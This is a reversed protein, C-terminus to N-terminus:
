PKSSPSGRYDINFGGLGTFFERSFYTGGHMAPKWGFCATM